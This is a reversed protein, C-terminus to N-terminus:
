TLLRYVDVYGNYTHSIDYDLARLQSRYSILKYLLEDNAMTQILYCLEEHDNRKFILGAGEVTETLGPADSAILPKGSALCELSSLSLGEYHSSLVLIDSQALAAATNTTAGTFEVRSAIGLESALKKIHTQTEGEGVLKLEYNDPLNTMAKLLTVHDKQKRFAAVMTVTIPRTLDIEKVPMLYDRVNIGNRVVHCKEGIRKGAFESLNQKVTDSVCIIKDYRTYMMIDAIKLLAISRRRNYTNHETTVYKTGKPKKCLSLLLQCPTNHAHVIDYHTSSLLKRLKILNSLTYLRCGEPSFRHVRIGKRTLIQMLPTDVANLVALEVDMGKDKMIPLLDTVLKEAGGYLLSTIVHLIKMPRM